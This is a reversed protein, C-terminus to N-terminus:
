ILSKMVMSMYQGLAFDFLDPSKLPFLMYLFNFIVGEKHM